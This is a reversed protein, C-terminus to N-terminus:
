MPANQAIKLLCLCLPYESSDNITILRISHSGESTRQDWNYVQIFIKSLHSYSPKLTKESYINKSKNELSLCMQIIRHQQQQQM